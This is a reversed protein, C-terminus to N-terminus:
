RALAIPKGVNRAELQALEGAHEEIRDALKLLMQARDAPPSDFWAEFAAAAAEVARDVDKASGLPVEAITEETAPSIIPETEGELADVWEGNVFMHYREMAVEETRGATGRDRSEQRGTDRNLAIMIDIRDSLGSRRGCHPHHSGERAHGNVSSSHKGVMTNSNLRQHLMVMTASLFRSESFIRKLTVTNPTAKETKRIENNM